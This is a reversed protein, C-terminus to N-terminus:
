ATSSENNANKKENIIDLIQKCVDITKNANCLDLIRMIKSNRRMRNRNKVFERCDLCLKYKETTINTCYKHTCYKQM